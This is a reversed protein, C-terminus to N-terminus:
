DSPLLDALPPIGAAASPAIGAPNSVPVALMLRNAAYVEPDGALGADAVRALQEEDAPAFVDAPAGQTLQTALTSSGAFTFQVTLGPRQAELEAGLETFVDTLSAAAFVTLTDEDAVAPSGCSTLVLAAVATAAALLKRVSM